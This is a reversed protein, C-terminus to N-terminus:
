GGLQAVTSLSQAALSEQTARNQSVVDSVIAKVWLFCLLAVLNEDGPFFRGIM